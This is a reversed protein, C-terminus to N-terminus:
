SLQHGQTSRRQLELRRRWHRLCTRLQAAGYLDFHRRRWRNFDCRCLMCFVALARDAVGDRGVICVHRHQDLGYSQVRASLGLLRNQLRCRGREILALTCRTQSPHRARHTAPQRTDLYLAADAASLFARRACGDLHQAALLLATATAPEHCRIKGRHHHQAARSIQGLQWQHRSPVPSAAVVCVTAHRHGRRLYLWFLSEPACQSVLQRSRM